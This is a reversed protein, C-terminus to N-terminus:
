EREGAIHRGRAQAPDEGRDGDTDHGHQDRREERGARGAALDGALDPGRPRQGLAALRVQPLQGLPHYAALRGRQGDRHGGAPGVIVREPQEGVIELLPLVDRGLRDQPDRVPCRAAARVLSHLDEDVQGAPHLRQDVPLDLQEVVELGLDLIGIQQLAQERYVV